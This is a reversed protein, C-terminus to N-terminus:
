AMMQPRMPLSMARAKPAPRSHCTLRCNCMLRPRSASAELRTPRQSRRMTGEPTTLTGNVGCVGCQKRIARSRSRSPMGTFKVEVNEARWATAAPRNDFTVKVLMKM